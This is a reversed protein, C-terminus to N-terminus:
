TITSLVAGVILWESAGSGFAAPQFLLGTVTLKSQTSGSPAPPAGAEPTALQVGAWVMGVSAVRWCTTPLATSPAPLLALSSVAKTLRSWTRGVMAAAGSRAGLPSPQYRASTVTPNVQVSSRDPM